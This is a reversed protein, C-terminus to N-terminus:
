SKGFPAAHREPQFSLIIPGGCNNLSDITKHRVHHVGSVLTCIVESFSVGSCLEHEEGFEGAAGAVFEVDRLEGFVTSQSCFENM